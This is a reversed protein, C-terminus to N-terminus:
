RALRDRIADAAAKMEAESRPPFEASRMRTAGSPLKEFTLAGRIIATNLADGERHPAIHVHLHPVGGGLIYVYSLEAGVADRAARTTRALTEGFTAAEEGDLDTVHPVHRRPELYSFGPVAGFLLTSLRWTGDQWVTARSLEKEAREPDCLICGEPM